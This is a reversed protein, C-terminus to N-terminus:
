ELQSPVAVTGIALGFRALGDLQGGSFFARKQFVAVFHDEVGAAAALPQRGNAEALATANNLGSGGSIMFVKLLVKSIIFMFLAVRDVRMMVEHRARATEAQRSGVAAACSLFSVVGGVANGTDGVAIGTSVSPTGGGAVAGVLAGALAAAGTIAADAEPTSSNGSEAAGALSNSGRLKMTPRHILTLGLLDTLSSCQDAGRPLLM